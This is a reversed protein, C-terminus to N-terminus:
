GASCAQRKAELDAWRAYLKAVEQEAEKLVEYAEQLRLHDTAVTPDEVQGRCTDRVTEAQLIRAEM